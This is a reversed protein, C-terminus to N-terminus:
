VNLLLFEREWSSIVRFFTEYEKRKVSVYARVFRRGLLTQLPECSELLDLAEGLSRPLGFGADQASTALPPTPALQERMGLPQCVRHAQPTEAFRTSVLLCGDGTWGALSAGRTNQYRELREVLEAPIEPIQETTRNGVVERQATPGQAAANPTNGFVGLVVALGAGLLALGRHNRHM